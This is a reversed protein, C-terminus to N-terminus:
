RRGRGRQPPHDQSTGRCYLYARDQGAPRRAPCARRRDAWGGARERVRPHIRDRSLFAAKKTRFGAVPQGADRHATGGSRHEGDARNTAPIPAADLVIRRLGRLSSPSALVARLLYLRMVAALRSGAGAARSIPAWASGTDAPLVDQCVSGSPTEARAPGIGLASLIAMGAGLLALLWTAFAIVSSGAARRM